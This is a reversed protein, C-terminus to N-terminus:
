DNLFGREARTFYLSNKTTLYLMYFDFTGKSVKTMVLPISGRKSYMGTPDYLNNDHTRVYYYLRGEQEITKSFFKENDGSIEKGNINFWIEKKNDSIVDDKCIFKM